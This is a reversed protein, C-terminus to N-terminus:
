YNGWEAHFWINSAGAVLFFMNLSLPFSLLARMTCKSGSSTNLLDSFMVFVTAEYCILSFRNCTLDGSVDPEWWHLQFMLPTLVPIYVTVGTGFPLHGVHVIMYNMKNKWLHVNYCVTLQGGPIDGSQMLEQYWDLSPGTSSCTSFLIYLPFHLSLFILLICTVLLIIM